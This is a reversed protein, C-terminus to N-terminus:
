LLIARRQSREVEGLVEGKLADRWTTSKAAGRACLVAHHLVVLQLPPQLAPAGSLQVFSTGSRFTSTWSEMPSQLLAVPDSSADHWVRWEWAQRMARCVAANQPTMPRPMFLPGDSAALDHQVSLQKLTPLKCLSWTGHKGRARTGAKSAWLPPM